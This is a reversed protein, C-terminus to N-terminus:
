MTSTIYERWLRCLEIETDKGFVLEWRQNRKLNMANSLGKNFLFMMNSIPLCQSSLMVNRAHDQKPEHPKM